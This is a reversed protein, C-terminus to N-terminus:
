TPFRNRCFIWIERLSHLGTRRQEQILGHGMVGLAPILFLLIATDKTFAGILSAIIAAYHNQIRQTKQYRLYNYTFIAFLLILFGKATFSSSTTTLAPLHLYSYFEQL